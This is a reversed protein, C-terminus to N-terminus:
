VSSKLIYTAFYLVSNKAFVLEKKMMMYREYKM